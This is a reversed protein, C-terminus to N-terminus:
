SGAIMLLVSILVGVIGVGVTLIRDETWFEPAWM